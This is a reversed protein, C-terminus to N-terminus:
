TSWSAPTRLRGAAVIRAAIRARVAGRRQAIIEALDDEDYTNVVDAATLEQASDMRM